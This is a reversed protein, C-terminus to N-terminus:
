INFKAKASKVRNLTAVMRAVSYLEPGGEGDAIQMYLAIASALLSKGNKKAIILVARKCRRLNNSKYVIGFIAAIFAKEWLDLVVLKGATKGKINRCFNEIFELAYNSKKANFYVDSTIDTIDKALKNLQIDMKKNVKKPNKKAWEWYEILPNYNDPYVIM